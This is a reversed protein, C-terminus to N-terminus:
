HIMKRVKIKGQDFESQLNKVVQYGDLDYKESFYILSKSIKKDSLKVEIISSIKQNEVLCFDVEKGDKTRLYHLHTEKGEIDVLRKQKALLELAM